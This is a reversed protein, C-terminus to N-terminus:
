TKYYTNGNNNDCSNICTSEKSNIQKLNIQLRLFSKKLWNKAFKCKISVINFEKLIHLM